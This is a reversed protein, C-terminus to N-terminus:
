AKAVLADFVALADAAEQPDLDAELCLASLGSAMLKRAASAGMLARPAPHGVRSVAAYRNSM